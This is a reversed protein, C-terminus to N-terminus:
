LQIPQVSVIVYDNSVLDGAAIINDPEASHLWWLFELFQFIKLNRQIIDDCSALSTFIILNKHHIWKKTSHIWWLFELSAFTKQNQQIFDDNSDLHYSYRWIRIFRWWLSAQNLREISFVHSWACVSIPIRTFKYCASLCTSIISILKGFKSMQVYKACVAFHLFVRITHSYRMDSDIPFHIPVIGKFRIHM